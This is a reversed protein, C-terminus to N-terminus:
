DSVDALSTASSIAPPELNDATAPKVVVACRKLAPQRSLPDADDTTAENPSASAGWLENWHIPMFVVDPALTSGPPASRGAGFAASRLRSSTRYESPRLTKPIFRFSPLELDCKDLHVAPVRVGVLAAGAPLKGPPEVVEGAPDGREIDIQAIAHAIHQQQRHAFESPRGALIAVAAGIVTVAVAEEGEAPVDAAAADEAVPGAESGFFEELGAVEGDGGVDAVEEGFGRGPVKADRWALQRLYERVM